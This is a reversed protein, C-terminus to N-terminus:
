AAAELRIVVSKSTPTNSVRATSDLPVLVNTEPYYAAACGRPTDYAVVRFAEARREVGDQWESVLDVMAGDAFGLAAIDAAHVFVVRRGDHIGRYRDDKGYITTNFQDHSRLTQLLLRGEPVRPYDLQNATFQARGSSTAFRRADRPPNPLVFGGPVDIRREFGDFGPVVNEIHRRILRYDGRLAPWDVAPANERGALLREAIGTLIAM